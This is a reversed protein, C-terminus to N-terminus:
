IYYDGKKSITLGFADIRMLIIILKDHEEELGLNM